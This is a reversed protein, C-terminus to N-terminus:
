QGVLHCTTTDVRATTPPGILDASIQEGPAVSTPGFEADGVPRGASVFSCQVRADLARATNSILTATVQWYGAPNYTLDNAQLSLRPMPQTVKPLPRPGTRRVTPQPKTMEDPPRYVPTADRSNNVAAPGPTPQQVPPQPKTMEDPPRYVPTADRSNNVAAPSPTPQQVPPQQRSAALQQELEKIRARAQALSQQEEQRAALQQALEESRAREKALTNQESQRAALQQELEESRAREKALTNQESQRAALQQELEKSSQREEAPVQQANRRASLQEEFEKARAREEQALLKLEQELEANRRRQKEMFQETLVEGDSASSITREGRDGADDRYFLWGAALMALCGAALATILGKTDDELSM